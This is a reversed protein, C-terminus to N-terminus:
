NNAISYLPGDAWFVPFGMPNALVCIALFTIASRASRSSL